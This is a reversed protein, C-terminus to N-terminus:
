FGWSQRRMATQARRTSIRDRVIGADGAGQQRLNLFQHLETLRSKKVHVTHTETVHPGHGVRYLKRDSVGIAYYRDTLAGNFARSRRSQKSILLSPILWGGLSPVYWLDFSEYSNDTYDKPYDLDSKLIGKPLTNKVTIKTM